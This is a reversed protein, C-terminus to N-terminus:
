NIQEFLAPSIHIFDNEILSEHGTMADEKQLQKIVEQVYVTNWITVINILLNLIRAIIQQENEQKKRIIRDGDFQAVTAM